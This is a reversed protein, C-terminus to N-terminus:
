LNQTHQTGRRRSWGAVTFCLGVIAALVGGGLLPLADSGAKVLMAPNVAQNVPIAQYTFAGPLTGTGGSSMVNVDVPGVPHPPTTVILTTDNIVTLNAGPSGGFTVETVDTFASSVAVMGGAMNLGAVMGTVESGAMGGAFGTVGTEGTFGTGTITVPTGGSVPGANPSVTTLTPVTIVSVTSSGSNSIYIKQLTQNAVAGVPNLGVTISNIISQTLGDIVTATGTSAANVNYTAIYVRNTSENVAIDNGTKGAPLNITNSVTQSITNIVFVQTTLQSTIYLKQAIPDLTMGNPQFSASPISITNLLTGLTVDVVNISGAANAVYAIQQGEDFAIYNPNSNPSTPLLSPQITNTVGDVVYLGTSANNSVYIKNNTENVEVGAIVSPFNITAQVTHTSGDIVTMTESLLAVVYIKNTIENLGIYALSLDIGLSINDTVSDTVSDIVTIKSPVSGPVIAYIKETTENIAMHNIGFGSPVPITVVGANAASSVGALVGSVALLISIGLSVFRRPV